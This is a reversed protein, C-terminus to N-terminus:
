VSQVSNRLIEIDINNYGVVLIFNVDSHFSPYILGLFLGYTRTDVTKQFTHSPLPCNDIVHTRAREPILTDGIKKSM